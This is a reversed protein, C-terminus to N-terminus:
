AVSFWADSSLRTLRCLSCFAFCASPCVEFDDMAVIAGIWVGGTTVQNGNHESFSNPSVDDPVGSLVRAALLM